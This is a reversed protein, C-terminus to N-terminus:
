CIDSISRVTLDYSVVIQTICCNTYYSLTLFFYIVVISSFRPHKLLTLPAKEKCLQLDVHTKCGMIALIHVNFNPKHFMASSPSLPEDEVREGEIEMIGRNIKVPKIVGKKRRRIVDEM